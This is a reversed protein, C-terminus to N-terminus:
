SFLRHLVGRTIWWRSHRGQFLAEGPQRRKWSINRRISTMSIRLPNPRRITLVGAIPHGKGERTLREMKWKAEMFVRGPTANGVVGAGPTFSRISNIWRGITGPVLKFVKSLLVPISNTFFSRTRTALCNGVSGSDM